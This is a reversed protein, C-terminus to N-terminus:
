KITLPKHYKYETMETLTDLISQCVSRMDHFFINYDINSNVECLIMEQIETRISFLSNM